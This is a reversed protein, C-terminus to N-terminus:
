VGYLQVQNAGSSVEGSFMCCKRLLGILVNGFNRDFRTIVRHRLRGFAFLFLWLIWRRLCVAMMAHLLGLLM